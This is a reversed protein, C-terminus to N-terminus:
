HTFKRFTAGGDEFIIKLEDNDITLRGNFIYDPYYIKIVGDELAFKYTAAQEVYYVSDRKIEFTANETSGDTWLGYLNSQQAHVITDSLLSSVGAYKGNPM